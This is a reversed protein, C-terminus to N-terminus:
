SEGGDRLRRYAQYLEEDGMAASKALGLFILLGLAYLTAGIILAPIIYNM